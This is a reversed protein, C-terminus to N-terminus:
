GVEAICRELIDLARDLDDEAITLPPTLTLVNGLTIKFSLGTELARYFIDEAVDNAPKKSDHDTVLEVGLIDKVSIELVPPPM